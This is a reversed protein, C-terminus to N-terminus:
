TVSLTTAPSGAGEARLSHYVELTAQATRDWTFRRVRDRGKAILRERLESDALIRALGDAIAETDLPDVLLAADGLVEAVASVNSALVPVGRAMAELPPFGFGEHLSPYAFAAAKRYLFELAADEVHGPCLVDNELRLANIQAQVRERDWFDRGVLVLQVREDRHRLLAFARILRELNKRVHFRGVYLIFTSSLSRTWEGWEPLPASAAGGGNFHQSVGYPIVAIKEAAIRYSELLERRSTETPVLVRSARALDRALLWRVRAGVIPKFFEPHMTACVDHVTLVVREPVGWPAFSFTAHLVDVPHRSVSLPLGFPIFHWRSDSATTHLAARPGVLGSLQQRASPTVFLHYSNASDTRLLSEILCVAYREPGGVKQGIWESAIGIRV